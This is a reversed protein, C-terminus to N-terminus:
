PLINLELMLHMGVVIGHSFALKEHTLCMDCVNSFLTDADSPPLRELVPRLNGFMVKLEGSDISNYMTYVEHLMELLSSVTGEYSNVPHCDLYDLVEHIHISM